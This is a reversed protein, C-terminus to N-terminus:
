GGHGFSVGLDGDVLQRGALRLAFV